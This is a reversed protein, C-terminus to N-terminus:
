TGSERLAGGAAAGAGRGASGDEAGTSAGRVSFGATFALAVLRASAAAARRAFGPGAVVPGAFILRGFRGAVGPM